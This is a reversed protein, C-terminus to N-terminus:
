KAYNLFIQKLGSVRGYPLECQGVIFLFYLWNVYEAGIGGKLISRMGYSKRLVYFDSVSIFKLQLFDSLFGPM